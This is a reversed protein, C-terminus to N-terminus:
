EYTKSFASQIQRYKALSSSSNWTIFGGKLGADVLAQAQSSIKSADYVVVPNWHPTDYATIWTRPIAPTPIETQRAAAGKAWNYVTQYPNSWTDVTRGFHDTYPMSSVVDVINSIAPWYQGYATVYESSCEGFVDVSLYVNEKHIQDLAYFLFNQIAEAKEEDYKNKFDAGRKSLEYSSEPFRVYDFQIENFGMDKIADKALEVNYEWANRSFASPWEMGSICDDPNDKAYHSDNFVVIRGIVYINAEKIKDIANKYDEKSNTAYEYATESYKKAAEIKYALAGDKLDIVIANVGSSKAIEIYSDINAIIDTGSNLYMTHAKELLKNNEFEVREYPYYDLTSAKGGYLEFSYKRDKHIDYVGNDNYNAEALDKTDVLYKQYVWGEIDDKKVKYMNVNGKDDIYDYDLIELQNGKKIFSEIKSDEENKYVTVSTRVFKEKELVIKNKDKTLVEEKVYYDNDGINIRIYKEEDITKSKNNSKVKTGRYFEEDTILEMKDNEEDYNYVEITNVTSALYYDNIVIKIKDKAFRSLKSIGFHGGFAILGLAFIAFFLRGVKLKKKKKRKRAM